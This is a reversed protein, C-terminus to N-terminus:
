LSEYVVKFLKGKIRLCVFASAYRHGVVFLELVSDQVQAGYREWEGVV